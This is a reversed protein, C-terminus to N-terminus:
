FMELFTLFRDIIMRGQVVMRVPTDQTAFANLDATIGVAGGEHIKGIPSKFCEDTKITWLSRVGNQAFLAQGAHFDAGYSRNGQFILRGPNFGSFRIGWPEELGQHKWVKQRVMITPISSISAAFLIGSSLKKFYSISPSLMPNIAPVFVTSFPESKLKCGQFAGCGEVPLRFSFYHVVDEYDACSAEDAEVRVEFLGARVGSIVNSFIAVSILVSSRLSASRTM